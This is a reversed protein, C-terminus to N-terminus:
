FDIDSIHILKSLDSHVKGYEEFCGEHYRWIGNELQELASNASTLTSNFDCEVTPNEYFVNRLDSNTDYVTDYSYDANLEFGCIQGTKDNTIYSLSPKVFTRTSILNNKSDFNYLVMSDACFNGDQSVVANNITAPLNLMGSFHAYLNAKSPSFINIQEAEIGTGLKYEVNKLMLDHEFDYMEGASVLQDYDDTLYDVVVKSPINIQNNIGSFYPKVTKRTFYVRSDNGFFSDGNLFARYPKKFIPNNNIAYDKFNNFKEGYSEFDDLSSDRFSAIQGIKSRFLSITNKVNISDIVARTDSKAAESQMLGKIGSLLKSFSNNRVGISNASYKQFDNEFGYYCSSYDNSPLHGVVKNGNRRKGTFAVSSFTINQIKVSM